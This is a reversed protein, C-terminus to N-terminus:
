ISLDARPKADSKRDIEPRSIFIRAPDVAFQKVLHDKIAIARQNALLILQEDTVEVTIPPTAPQAVPLDEKHFEKQSAPATPAQLLPKQALEANLAKRDSETAKGTVKIRLKPRKNMLSALNELYKLATQDLLVNAPTFFVPDLRLEFAKKGVIQAITIMTGYPQLSNKVFSVAAMKMAKGLAQNIADSLDFKPDKVNGSIPLKLHINNEKDRLLSLAAPLPMSIQQTLQKMKNEDKPEIELNNLVLRNIGQMDGKNIDLKLEADLQGSKLHYGLTSGTFSSLPPLNLQKIEGEVNLTPKLAFPQIRGKLVIRSYKDPQTILQFPSPQEPHSSDLNRLSFENIKFVGHYPPALTEDDYRFRSDGGIRFNTIRIVPQRTVAPTAGKPSEAPARAEATEPIPTQKAALLDELIEWRGNPKRRLQAILRNLDIAQITIDKLQALEINEANAKDVTVLSSDAATNLAAVKRMPEALAVQKANLQRINIKQLGQVHVDKLDLAKLRLLNLHRQQDSIQIDNLNSNATMVIDHDNQKGYELNGIWVFQNQQLRLEHRPLYVATHGSDLRGKLNIFTAASAAGFVEQLNGNWLFSEASFELLNTQGQIQRITISGKQDMRYRNDEQQIVEQDLDISLEGELHKVYPAALDSFPKLQLGTLKLHGTIKPRDAFPLLDGQYSLPSENLKGQFEIHASQEKQWTHLRSLSLRNIQLTRRLMPSIFQIRGNLVEVQDVGYGWPSQKSPAKKEQALNLLVGAIRLRKTEPLEVTINMDKIILKKLFAKKSLVPRWSFSLTLEPINLVQDQLHLAQLEYISLKGTFPNFDIDKVSAQDVGGALLSHRIGYGIGFPLLILILVFLVLISFIAWFWRRRTIQKFTEMAVLMKPNM